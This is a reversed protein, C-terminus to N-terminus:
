HYSADHLKVKKKPESPQGRDKTGDPTADMELVHQVVQRLERGTLREIVISRTATRLELLTNYIGEGDPAENM